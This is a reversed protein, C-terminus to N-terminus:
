FDAPLSTHSLHDGVSVLELHSNVPNASADYEMVYHLRPHLVAELTFSLPTFLLM